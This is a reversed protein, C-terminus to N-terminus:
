HNNKWCVRGGRGETHWLHSKGWLEEAKWSFLPNGTAPFVKARLELTLIEIANADSFDTMCQLHVLQWVWGQSGRTLMVNYVRSSQILFLQFTVQGRSIDECSLPQGTTALFLWTYSYWIQLEPFPSFQSCILCGFGFQVWSGETESPHSWSPVSNLSDWTM